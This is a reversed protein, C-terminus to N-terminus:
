VWLRRSDRQAKPAACVRPFVYETVPAISLHSMYWMYKGREEGRREEVTENLAVAEQTVALEVPQGVPQRCTSQLGTDIGGTGVRLAELAGADELGRGAAKHTTLQTHAEDTNIHAPTNLLLWVSLQETRNNVYNCMNTQTTNQKARCKCVSMSITRTHTTNPEKVDM